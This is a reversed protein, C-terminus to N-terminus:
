VVLSRAWRRAGGNQTAPMKGIIELAIVEDGVHDAELADELVLDAFVARAVAASFQLRDNIGGVRIEARVSDLDARVAGDVEEVPLIGDDSVHLMVQAIWTPVLSMPADVADRIGAPRQELGDLDGALRDLAEEVQELLRFVVNAIPRPDLKASAIRALDNRCSHFPHLCQVLVVLVVLVM